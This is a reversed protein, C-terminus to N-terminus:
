PSRRPCVHLFGEIVAVRDKTLALEAQTDSLVDKTDSLEGRTDDLLNSLEVYDAVSFNFGTTAASFM